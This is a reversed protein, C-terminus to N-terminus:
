LVREGTSSSWPTVMMWALPHDHIGPPWAHGIDRALAM